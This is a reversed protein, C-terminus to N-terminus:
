ALYIDWAYLEEFVTVLKRTWHTHVRGLAESCIVAIASGYCNCLASTARILLPCPLIALHLQVITGLTESNGAPVGGVPGFQLDARARVRARLLELIGRPSLVLLDVSPTDNVRLKIVSM